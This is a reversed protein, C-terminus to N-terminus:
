EITVTLGNELLAEAIPRLDSESGGKVAYKGHLHVFLSCQEAQSEDHKCYEMLCSMVHDFTNVNDNYLILSRTAEKKTRTEVAPELLTNM